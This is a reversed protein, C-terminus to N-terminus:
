RLRFGNLAYNKWRKDIERYSKYHKIAAATEAEVDSMNRHPDGGKGTATTARPPFSLRDM